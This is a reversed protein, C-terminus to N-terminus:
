SEPKAPLYTNMGVGTATCKKTCSCVIRRNTSDNGQIYISSKNSLTNNLIKCYPICKCINYKGKYVLQFCALKCYAQIVTTM